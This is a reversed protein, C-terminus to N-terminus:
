WVMRRKNGSEYVVYVHRHKHNLKIRQTFIVEKTRFWSGYYSLTRDHSKDLSMIM